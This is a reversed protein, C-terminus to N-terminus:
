SNHCPGHCVLRQTMVREFMLNIIKLIIQHYLMIIVLLPYKVEIYFLKTNLFQILNFLLFAIFIKNM